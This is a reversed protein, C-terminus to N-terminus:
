TEQCSNNQLRLLPFQFSLFHFLDDYSYRDQQALHRPRQPRNSTNAADKRADALAAAAGQSM